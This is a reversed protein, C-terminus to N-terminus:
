ASPLEPSSISYHNQVEKLLPKLAKLVVKSIVVLQVSSIRLDNIRVTLGGIDAVGEIEKNPKDLHIAGMANAEFKIIDRITFEKGWRILIIRKLFANKDIEIIKRNLSDTDPDLGLGVAALAVKPKPFGKGCGELPNCDTIRFLIKLKYERNIQDILPTGDLLLQRLIRSLDLIEYMDKSKSAKELDDLRKLFLGESYKKDPVM